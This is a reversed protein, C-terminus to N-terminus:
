AENPRSTVLRHLLRAVYIKRTTKIYSHNNHSKEGGGVGFPKASSCHMMKQLRTPSVLPRFKSLSIQVIHQALEDGYRSFVYWDDYIAMECNNLERYCETTIDQTYM